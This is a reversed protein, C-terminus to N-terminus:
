MKLVVHVSICKHVRKSALNQIKPFFIYVHVVAGVYKQDHATSCHVSLTMTEVTIHSFM